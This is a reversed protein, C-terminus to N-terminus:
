TMYEKMPILPYMSKISPRVPAVMHEFKSSGNFGREYLKDM